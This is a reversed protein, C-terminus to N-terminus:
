AAGKHKPRTKSGIPVVNQKGQELDQLVLAWAELAARRESYYDHTNYTAVIGRLKHNLCREAVENAIGLAALHTRMTRRFDHITFHSLGHELEALAVNLTDRGVHNSLSRSDHRRRPFVHERDGVMVKLDKFTGIVLPPLPIDMATGTKSREAPLHWVPGAPKVSDLELESWRAGLLESKRVGLALLLRVTMLNRTDFNDADRMKKFLVAIEDRSLSRTRAKEPGGADRQTLSRAPNATILQRRVAYDLIRRIHRLLDNAATRGRPQRKLKDVPKLIDNVVIEDVRLRGISPVIHNDIYRRAVEPHRVRGKMEAEFWDEAVQSVSLRDQNSIELKRRESKPDKGDDLCVQQARARQRAEALSMAPYRGLPLWEAKGGRKYRFVWTAGNATQKRFYLGGGDCRVCPKGASHLRSVSLGTLLQRTAM